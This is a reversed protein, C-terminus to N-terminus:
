CTRVWWWGANKAMSGRAEAGWGWEWQVCSGACAVGWVLRGQACVVKKRFDISRERERERKQIQCVGVYEGLGLEFTGVAAHGWLGWAHLCGWVSSQYGGRRPCVFPHCKLHCLTRWELKAVEDEEMEPGTAKLHKVVWPLFYRPGSFLYHMQSVAEM